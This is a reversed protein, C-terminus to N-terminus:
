LRTFKFQLIFFTKSIAFTKSNTKKVRMIEFTPPSPSITKWYVNESMQLLYQSMGLPTKWLFRATDRM